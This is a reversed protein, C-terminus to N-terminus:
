ARKVREVRGRDGRFHRVSYILLGLAILGSVVIGVGTATGGFLWWRESVPWFSPAPPDWIFVVGVSVVVLASLASFMVRPWTKVGERAGRYAQRRMPALQREAWSNNQALIVLGTVLILTGPGPLPMLVVGVVMLTWGIIDYGVRRLWQRIRLLM